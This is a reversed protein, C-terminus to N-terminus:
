WPPMAAVDSRRLAHRCPLSQLSPRRWRWLIRSFVHLKLFWGRYFEFRCFIQLLCLCIEYKTECCDALFVCHNGPPCLIPSTLGAVPCYSGIHCKTGKLQDSVACSGLACLNPFGSWSISCFYGVPCLTDSSNM